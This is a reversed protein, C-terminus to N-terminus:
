DSQFADRVWQRQHIPVVRRRVHRKVEAGRAADGPDFDVPETTANEPQRDSTASMDPAMVPSRIRVPQSSTEESPPLSTAGIKAASVLSTDPSRQVLWQALLVLGTMLCVLALLGRM